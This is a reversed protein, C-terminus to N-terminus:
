AARCAERGATISRRQSQGLWGKSWAEGKNGSCPWGEWGPEPVSGRGRGGVGDGRQAKEKAELHPEGPSSERAKAAQDGRLQVVWAGAPLQLFRLLEPGVMCMSLGHRCKLLIGLHCSCMHSAMSPQGLAAGGSMALPLLGWPRGPAGGGYLSTTTGARSAM